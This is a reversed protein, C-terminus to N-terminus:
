IENNKYGAKLLVKTVNAINWGGDTMANSLTNALICEEMEKKTKLLGTQIVTPQSYYPQIWTQGNIEMVPIVKYPKNNIYAYKISAHIASIIIWFKNKDNGSLDDIQIDYKGDCQFNLPFFAKCLDNIENWTYGKAEYAEASLGIHKNKLTELTIEM